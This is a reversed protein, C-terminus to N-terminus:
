PAAISEALAAKMMDDFAKIDDAVDLAPGEPISNLTAIEEPEKLQVFGAPPATYDRMTYMFAFPDWYHRKGGTIKYVYLEGYKDNYSYTYGETIGAPLAPTDAPKTDGPKTGSSGGYSFFDKNLLIIIVLLGVIVFVGAYMLVEINDNIFDM